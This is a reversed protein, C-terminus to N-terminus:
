AASGVRADVQGILLTIREKIAERDQKLQSGESKLGANEAKLEAIEAKLGSIEHRQEKGDRTLTVIEDKASSVEQRLGANEQRSKEYKVLLDELRRELSEIPSQEVTLTAM